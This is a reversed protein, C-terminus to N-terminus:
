IWLSFLLSYVWLKIVVRYYLLKIYLKKYLVYIYGYMYWKITGNVYIISLQFILMLGYFYIIDLKKSHSIHCEKNIIFPLLFIM